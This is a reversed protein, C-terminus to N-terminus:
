GSGEHTEIQGHDRGRPASEAGDRERRPRTFFQDPGLDVRMPLVILPADHAHLRRQLSLATGGHLLTSAWGHPRTMPRTAVFVVNPHDARAKLCLQELTEVADTSFGTYVRAPMGHDRSWAVIKACREGVQQKLRELAEHGGYCEADVEGASIIVVSDFGGRFLRQAHMLAHLGAGGHPGTVIGVPRKMRATKPIEVAATPDRILLEEFTRDMATDFRRYHDRVWYGCAALVGAVLLAAWAGQSFKAVFLTILISVAVCLALCAIVLRLRWGKTEGRHAIGHRVLGTLSLSFTLFVNISYLVVLSHVLGGTVTLLIGAAVGMALVGNQAVLKSSLHAFSHPAWKDYAMSALVAPGGLFGSSAAVLLLAAAFTMAITLVVQRAIEHNPFLQELTSEFVVANLTKGPQIEPLWVTYLLMIGGAIVALSLAILAMARAGTKARPPKLAHANNSLAEIGTYTGAGAAYASAIIAILSWIGTDATVEIAQREAEVVAGVLEDGKAAIGFAILVVHTILFGFFIPALVSISERIGRLNLTLLLGLGGALAFPKHQLWDPPALSLLADSAAAVSIAITLAYDVVLASGSVLGALPHVLRTAAQYGGGGSPFLAIVQVYALSIVVVTLATILALWLVLPEHGSLHLAKYAEEPGYNASSLSDAGVGAWALVAVLAASRWTEYSMPNKPSKGRGSLREGVKTLLNM